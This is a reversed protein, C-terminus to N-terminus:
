YQEHPRFISSGFNTCEQNHLILYSHRNCHNVRMHTQRWAFSEGRVGVRAACSHSVQSRLQKLVEDSKRKEAALRERQLEHERTWRALERGMAEVDEHVFEVCKGLPNASQCLQQVWERLQENLRRQEAKLGAKDGGKGGSASGLKATFTIGGGQRDVSASSASRGNADKGGGGRKQDSMAKMIDRMVKGGEEPAGGGMGGFQGFGMRGRDDDDGRQNAEDDNGNGNGNGDGGDEDDDDDDRASESDLIVGATAMTAAPAAASTAALSSAGGYAGNGGGVMQTQDLRADSAAAVAPKEDEVLNSKVKPPPRRATKPREFKGM